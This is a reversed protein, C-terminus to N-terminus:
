GAMWPNLLSVGLPEFDKINRTALVAGHRECIAAIQADAMHVPRGRKECAALKEAYYAAAPADFPLVRGAFEENFLGISLDTLRRKRRGAPLRRIGHLIEAVTISTVAVDRGSQRDLWAIVRPEPAPRMLESLVNTDLVIM